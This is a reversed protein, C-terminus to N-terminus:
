GGYTAQIVVIKAGDTLATQAWKDRSVIKNDIAVAIGVTNIGQSTLLEQLTAGDEVTVERQNLFVKM